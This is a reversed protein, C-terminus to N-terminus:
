PTYAKMAEEYEKKKKAYADEYPKKETASLTKWKEGAMKSVASAAKGTCQKAFEPRMKELFCGYAGGVPKKPKDPDKEKKPKSDKGKRKKGQKVGGADLFAKMDKDYAAKAAAYKKEYPAKDDNSMAKWRDGALKGVATVKSAGEPLEKILKARNESLYIGYAGGVPKKPQSAM